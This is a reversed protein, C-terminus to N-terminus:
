TWTEIIRISSPKIVKLLQDRWDVIKMESLHKLSNPDMLLRKNELENFSNNLGSRYYSDYYYSYLYGSVGHLILRDLAPASFMEYWPRTALDLIAESFTM